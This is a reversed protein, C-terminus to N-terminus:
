GRPMPRWFPLQHQMTPLPVTCRLAGAPQEERQPEPTALTGGGGRGRRVDLVLRRQWVRLARVLSRVRQHLRGDRPGHLPRRPQLNVCLLIGAHKFVLCCCLLVPRRRWLCPALRYSGPVFFAAGARGKSSPCSFRRRRPLLPPVLPLSRPRWQERKVCQRREDIATGCLQQRWGLHRELKALPLSGLSWRAIRRPRPLGRRGHHSRPGRARLCLSRPGASECSAGDPWLAHCFVVHPRYAARQEGVAFCGSCHPGRAVRSCQCTVRM